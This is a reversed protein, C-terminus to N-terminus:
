HPMGGCSCDDLDEQCHPCYDMETLISEEHNVVEWQNGMVGNANWAVEEYQIDRYTKVHNTTHWREPMVFRLMTCFERFRRRLMSRDQVNPYWQMPDINTTIIITKSRFETNGGKWEIKMPHRDLIKLMLDMKIQHRFEDMVVCEEGEYEPWWWRGGMPWPVHYVDANEECAWWSKGVGTPGFCIVVEMQWKRPVKATVKNYWREIGCCKKIFEKPFNEAIESPKAGQELAEIMDGSFRSRAATGSELSMGGLVRTRQKRCYNRAELQTGRRSEWHISDGFDHKLQTLSKSRTFEIYGQLHVTGTNSEGAEGIEEQLIFYRINHPMINRTALDRWFVKEILSPNNSTFCVNRHRGVYTM